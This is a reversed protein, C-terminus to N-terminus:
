VPLSIKLRKLETKLQAETPKDILTLTGYYKGGTKFEQYGLCEKDQVFAVWGTPIITETAM